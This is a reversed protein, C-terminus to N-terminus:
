QGPFANRQQCLTSGTFSNTGALTMVGAGIQTLSGSGSIANGVILGNDSRDFTLAANDTVPGSGLAGNVGGNDIQLTRGSIITPGTSSNASTLVLIGSGTQTLSGSGSVIPNFVVADAHNFM